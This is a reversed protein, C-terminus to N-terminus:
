DKIKLGSDDQGKDRTDMFIGIEKQMVDPYPSFKLKCDSSNLYNFINYKFARSSNSTMQEDGCGYGINM